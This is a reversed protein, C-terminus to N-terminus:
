GDNNGVEALADIIKIGFDNIFSPLAESADAKPSYVIVVASNDGHGTLMAWATLWKAKIDSSTLHGNIWYWQWVIYRDDHGSAKTILEASRIRYDQGGLTLNTSNNSVVSWDPDLSDALVNVSTVLKSDFNQNRYYAIYLGVWRGDASYASHAEASPNIFRPKWNISPPEARWSGNADPISLKIAPHDSTDRLSSEAIPGSAIILAIFIANIWGFQVSDINSKATTTAPQHDIPPEAWRMGIAFLITIVVGFFVWGYILHDIGAALKNGSIHGLLVILYARLWNAIIPVLLAVVM